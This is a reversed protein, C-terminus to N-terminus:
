RRRITLRAGYLDAHTPDNDHVDHYADGLFKRLEVAYERWADYERVPKIEVKDLVKRLGVHPAACRELAGYCTFLAFREDHCEYASVYTSNFVWRLEQDRIFEQFMLGNLAQAFTGPAAGERCTLRISALPLQTTDLGPAKLEDSAPSVIQTAFHGLIQGHHTTRAVSVRIMEGLVTQQSALIMKHFAEVPCNPMGCCQQVQTIYGRLKDDNNSADAPCHLLERLYDMPQRKGAGSGDTSVAGGLATLRSFGSSVTHRPPALYAFSRVMFRGDPLAIVKSNSLSPRRRQQKDVLVKGGALHALATAMVGPLDPGCINLELPYRHAVHLRHPAYARHVAAIREIPDDLVDILSDGRFHGSNATLELGPAPFLRSREADATTQTKLPWLGSYYVLSHEFRRQVQRQGAQGSVLVLPLPRPRRSHSSERTVATVVASIARLEDEPSPDSFVIIDPWFAALVDRAVEYDDADHMFLPVRLPDSAVPFVTVDSAGAVQAQPNRSVFRSFSLERIVLKQREAVGAIWAKLWSSADKAAKDYAEDSGLSIIVPDASQVAVLADLETQPLNKLFSDVLYFMRKGHGCLLVRPWAGDIARLKLVAAHLVLAAQLGELHEPFICHVPLDHDVVLSTTYQTWNSSRVVVAAPIKPDQRKLRELIRAAITGDPDDAVCAIFKADRFGALDLVHEDSPDGAVTPLVVRADSPPKKNAEGPADSRSAEESVDITGIPMGEPTRAATLGSRADVIGFQLLVKGLAGDPLLINCSGELHETLRDYRISGTRFQQRVFAEGLEGYGLVLTHGRLSQVSRHLGWAYARAYSDEILYLDRLLPGLWAFTAALWTNFLTFASIDWPLIPVKTHASLPQLSLLLTVFLSVVLPTAHQRLISLFLLQGRAVHLRLEDTSTGEFLQDFFRRLWHTTASRTATLAVALIPLIVVLPPASLITGLGLFALVADSAPTNWASAALFAWALLSCVMVVSAIPVFYFSVFLPSRQRGPLPMSLFLLILIAALRAIVVGYAAAVAGALWLVPEHGKTAGQHTGAAVDALYALLWWVVLLYISWGCFADTLPFGSYVDTASLKRRPVTYARAAIVGLTIVVASPGISLATFTPSSHRVARWLVTAVAFVVGGGGAVAVVLGSRFANSFARTYAPNRASRIVHERVLQTLCLTAAACVIPIRLPEHDPHIWVAWPLYWLLIAAAAGLLLYRLNGTTRM